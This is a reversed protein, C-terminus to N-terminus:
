LHCDACEFQVLKYQTVMKGEMVEEIHCEKCAVNIHAGELVFRATNHDFNGPRWEEFGHCRRCDTVGEVDFQRDHINDHCSFCDTKLGSFPVQIEPANPTDPKHCAVCSTRFHKGQLEFGTLHHDFSVQVWGDPSHCQNCTKQPYYQESLFGDHVDAHCDICTQGINRFSWEENKKHCSFCPTALHAGELPFPGENHKEPTYSSGSFGEVSHCERCDPKYKERVFQGEHFDDHCDSCRDHQMPDTLKTEHCKRCDVQMHLGELPYGTLDHDFQDLTLKIQFSEENHCKRCDAGFKTEHIDKHCTVCSRFDKGKYDQFVNEPETNGGIQHCSACDVKRHKGVLPFNTQNHNFSSKGVFVNFSEETHCDKCNKGFQNNHVDDHCEACSNFPVGAFRQFVANNTFTVEHCKLCDVDQHKGKLRFDTKGHEFLTAPAFAETNHCSACNTSLTNQHVDKHCAICETELGL